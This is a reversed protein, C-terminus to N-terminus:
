HVDGNCRGNTLDIELLHGIIDKEKNLYDKERKISEEQSICIAPRSYTPTPNLPRRGAAEWANGHSSEFQAMDPYEGCLVAGVIHSTPVRVTGKAKMAKPSEFEGNFM